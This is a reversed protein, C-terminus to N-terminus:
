INKDQTFAANLPAASGPATQVIIRAADRMDIMDIRRDLLKDNVQAEALRKIAGGMDEEPLRVTIGNKMVLDWRRNGVWKAAEVRTNVDDEVKLIDLLSAANQPANQGVIIMLHAFRGLDRTTLEVGDRDVLALKGGRQWLAIPERETLHVYLTDPFRREVRAHKVWTLRSIKEQTAKLDVALIPQHKDIDLLTKLGERDVYYRGEVFINHVRFGKAATANYFASQFGAAHDKVWVSHTLAYGAGGVLACVVAFVASRRLGYILRAATGTRRNLITTRRTGRSTPNTRSM